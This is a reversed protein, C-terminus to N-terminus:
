GNGRMERWLGLKEQAVRGSFSFLACDEDAVFRHPVWCPMSPIDRPKFAITRETDGEMDALHGRGEVPSLVTNETTQDLRTEFGEPLLQLFTSITPM